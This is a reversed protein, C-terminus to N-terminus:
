HGSAYLMEVHPIGDELYVDSVPAFGFSMYFATLYEQASIRIKGCKLDEEIYEIARSLIAKSLGKKRSKMDVCVRGISIESFSVDKDLIRLYAVLKGEHICMLHHARKDKKDCDQYVCNQEVVFVDNRIRLIEYLEDTSLEDFHKIEINMTAGIYMRGLNSSLELKKIKDRFLM